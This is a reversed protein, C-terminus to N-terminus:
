VRAWRGWVRPTVTANGTPNTMRLVFGESVAFDPTEGYPFDREYYFKFPDADLPRLSTIVTPEATWNKAAAFTEPIRPGAEQDVAVATSNTGPANTAFTCACLEVLVPKDSAAIGDISYALGMLDIAHGADAKVGFVSKTTAGPLSVTGETDADYIARM